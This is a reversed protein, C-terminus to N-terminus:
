EKGRSKAKNKLQGVVCKATGEPDTVYKSRTLHQLDLGFDILDVAGEKLMKVQHRKGYREDTMSGTTHGVLEARLQYDSGIYKLHTIVTHRFSHYDLRRKVAAIGCSIKFRGFWRSAYHSYSNHKYPLEPFLRVQGMDRLAKAYDLLRLDGLLFSHIPVLRISSQNKVRKKEPTFPSELDDDVGPRINFCWIGGVNEIDELALQCLENLRAGTYLGLVPLWFMYPARFSDNIYNKSHFIKNLEETTFADREEDTRKTKKVRFRIGKAYNKEILDRDEAFSLVESVYGMHKTITRVSLREELPYDKSLIEETPVKPYKKNCHKPWKQLKEFFDLMVSKNIESLNLDGVVKKFLEQSEEFDKLGKPGKAQTRRNEDIVMEVVESYRKSTKRSKKKNPLKNDEAQQLLTFPFHQRQLKHAEDYDGETRAGFIKILIQNAKLLEVALRRYDISDPAINSIANDKLLEEVRPSISSLNEYALETTTQQYMDSLALSEAELEDPTPPKRDLRWEEDESLIKQIYQRILERLQVADMVTFGGAKIRKRTLDMLRKVYKGILEARLHAERIDPTQLSYCLESIPWTELLDRPIRIRFYFVYGRLVLYTTVRNLGRM